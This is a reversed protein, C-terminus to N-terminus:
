MPRVCSHSAEMLERSAVAEEALFLEVGAATTLSLKGMVTFPTHSIYESELSKLVSDVAMGPHLTLIRLIFLCLVPFCNKSARM